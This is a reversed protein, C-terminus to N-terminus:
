NDGLLNNRHFKVSMSGKGNYVLGADCHFLDSDDWKCPLNTAGPMMGTEEVEEPERVDFLQIDGSDIMRRLEAYDIDTEPLADRSDTSLCSASELLFLFLFLVILM